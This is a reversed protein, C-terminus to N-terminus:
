EKDDELKKRENPWYESPLPHQYYGKCNFASCWYGFGAPASRGIPQKFHGCSTCTVYADNNLRHQEDTWSAEQGNTFATALADYDM